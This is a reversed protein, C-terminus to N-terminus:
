RRTDTWKSFVKFEFSFKLVIFKLLLSKIKTSSQVVYM